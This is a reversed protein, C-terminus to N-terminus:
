LNWRFPPDKRKRKQATIMYESHSVHRESEHISQIGWILASLLRWAIFLVVAATQHLTGLNSVAFGEVCPKRAVLVLHDVRHQAEGVDDFRSSHGPKECFLSSAKKCADVQACRGLAATRSSAAASSPLHNTAPQHSTISLCVQITYFM